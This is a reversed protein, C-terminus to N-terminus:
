KSPSNGPASRRARGPLAPMDSFEVRCHIGAPIALNPNAVELRTGFTGSAADLVRDIVKVTGVASVKIPSDAKVTAKQGPKIYPYAEAPLIAEAYLVSIDAVRLIPKKSESPDALEGNHMNRETVVGSVPSKIVRLRIQEENRRVELEALRRNDKADQLESEALRKETVSEDRDQKSIFNEGALNERRTLKLSAYELRSEGSRVAGQMTAKHRAVDTAAREAGSDLEVLIQGAKVFQGRETNIREILGTVPSRLEVTQRPELVCDFEAAHAAHLCVPALGACLALTRWQSPSLSRWFQSLVRAWINNSLPGSVSPSVPSLASANV